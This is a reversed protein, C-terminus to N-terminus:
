RDFSYRSAFSLGIYKIPSDFISFGVSFILAKKLNRLEIAYSLKKRINHAIIKEAVNILAHFLVLIFFTSSHSSVVTSFNGQCAQMKRISFAANRKRLHIIYCSICSCIQYFLKSHVSGRNCYKGSSFPSVPMSGPHPIHLCVTHVSQHMAEQCSFQLFNKFIQTWPSNNRVPFTTLM